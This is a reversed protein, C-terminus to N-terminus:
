AASRQAFVTVRTLPSRCAHCCYWDTGLFGALEPLPTFPGLHRDLACRVRAGTNTALVATPIM